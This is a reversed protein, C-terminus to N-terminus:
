VRLPERHKSGYDGGEASTPQDTMGDPDAPSEGPQGQAPQDTSRAPLDSYGEQGEPVQHQLELRNAERLLEDQGFSRKEDLKAKMGLWCAAYDIEPM